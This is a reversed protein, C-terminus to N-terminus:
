NEDLTSILFRKNKYYYNTWWSILPCIDTLWKNDTSLYLCDQFTNIAVTKRITNLHLIRRGEMRSTIINCINEGGRINNGAVAAIVNGWSFWWKINHWILHEAGLTIIKDTIPKYNFVKDKRHSIAWLQVPLSVTWQALEGPDSINGPLAFLAVCLQVEKM